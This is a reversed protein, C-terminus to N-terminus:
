KAGKLKTALDKQAQAYNKVQPTADPMALAKDATAIADDYQKADVYVKSMRATVIANPFVQLANKYDTIADAYKKDVTSAQAM